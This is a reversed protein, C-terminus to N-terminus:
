VAARALSRCSLVLSRKGSVDEHLVQPAPVVFSAMSAGGPVRTAAANVSSARAIQGRFSSSNFADVSGWRLPGVQHVEIGREVLLEEVHRHSLCFRLYWRVAVVIVEPLFRFGAFASTPWLWRRTCNLSRM